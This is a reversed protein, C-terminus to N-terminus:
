EVMARLFSVFWERIAYIAAITGAIWVAINRGTRISRLLWKRRIEKQIESRVFAREAATLPPEGDVDDIIWSQMNEPKEDSM